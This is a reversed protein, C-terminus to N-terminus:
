INNIQGYWGLYAVYIGVNQEECTLDEGRDMNGIDIVICGGLGVVVM